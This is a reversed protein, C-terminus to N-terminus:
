IVNSDVMEKFPPDAIRKKSVYAVLKFPTSNEPISMREKCNLSTRVSDYVMTSKIMVLGIADM